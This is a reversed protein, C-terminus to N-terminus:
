KRHPAPKTFGRAKALEILGHELGTTADVRCFNFLEESWVAFAPRGKLAGIAVLPEDAKPRGGVGKRSKKKAPMTPIACQSM